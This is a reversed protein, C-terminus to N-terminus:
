FFGLLHAAYGMLALGAALCLGLIGGILKATDLWTPQTRPEDSPPPVYNGVM